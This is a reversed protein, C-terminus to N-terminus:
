PYKLHCVCMYMGVKKDINISVNLDLCTVLLLSLMYSSVTITGIVTLRQHIQGECALKLHYIDNYEACLADDTRHTM